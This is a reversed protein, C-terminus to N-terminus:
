KATKLAKLYAKPDRGVNDAPFSIFDTSLDKYKRELGTKFHERVKPMKTGRTGCLTIQQGVKGRVRLDFFVLGVVGLAKDSGKGAGFGTVYEGTGFIFTSPLSM